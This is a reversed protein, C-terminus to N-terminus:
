PKLGEAGFTQQAVTEAEMKRWKEIQVLRWGDQTIRGRWLYWDGIKGAEVIPKGWKPYDHRGIKVIISGTDDEVVLNLFLNHHTVKRGNRKVVNGYENLDRLNKEKLKGVFVYDGPEQIDQIHCVDGSLVHYKIPNRYLDGFRREGEFIDDYPTIPAILMKAMSPTFPKGSARRALIDEAKKPGVGKINMLGGILLGEQVSWTLSSRQPDVPVFSFGEKVLDRLIKIAQDQDKANRLCAASYELPYHAKLVACWYSLLGYSVAHSKNFAWSGFTCMKEWVRRADGEDLHHQTRAGDRFKEWYRNFFEEGLSKSMAKRLESVDEWSLGGLRRGMAMVQEQYIVVGYTESTLDEAIVHLPTPPEKGLRKGIFETAAGSHLPGPRALATIVVIDNFEKIKMQRTLSQLAYGEYQFIGSFREANFIHFAEQDDLPYTVLWDRSKSIQDLTDQIVSLTRLGLADIKLLNLAEADKKDIQAAGSKDLACYEVVPRQCVIVGAAHMGSNRAHAELQGAVRIGPYKAVLAQGIELTDLADQICFQARADGTSRDIVAEKVDKVEWPPIGLEKTVDILASKAKYRSVTGIRGVREAGYTDRMHQIVLERKTDQFDIDIDPLDARTVDIFREFMLDHVIPDVDTIALLYCVLSGASSGRAPGVLMHQKAFQVMDAIVYFYDEFNKEKILALERELRAQYEKKFFQRVDADEALGILDLGRAKAGNMCMVYLSAPREPIVGEAKPLKAVCANGVAETRAFDADTAEPIAVRLEWEDPIHLLGNGRSKRGEAALIEYAPRDQTTPYVNDGVVVTPWGQSKLLRNFHSSEPSLQGLVYDSPTYAALYCGAGILVFVNDTLASLQDSGVRPVYFFGETNAWTILSYLEQLGLQTRALVVATGWPQRSRDRPDAVVTFEAGFIPELGAKKCEKAWSVHGWAGNDTIAARPSGAIAAIVQPLKGYARRFSYETRLKLHIM